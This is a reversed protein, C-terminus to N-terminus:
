FKRLCCGQRLETYHLLVVDTIIVSVTKCWVTIFHLYYDLRGELFHFMYDRLVDYMVAFKKMCLIASERGDYLLRSGCSVDSCPRYYVKLM